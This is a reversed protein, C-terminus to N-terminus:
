KNIWQEKGFMGKGQMFECAGEVVSEAYRFLMCVCVCTYYSPTLRPCM